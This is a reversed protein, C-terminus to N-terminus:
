QSAINNVIDNNELVTSLTNKDEVDEMGLNKFTKQKMGTEILTEKSIGTKTEMKELETPDKMIDTAMKTVKLMIRMFEQQEKESSGREVRKGTVKGNADYLYEGVNKTRLDKKAEILNKIKLKRYKKKDVDPLKDVFYNILKNLQTETINPYNPTPLFEM